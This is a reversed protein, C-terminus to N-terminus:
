LEGILKELQKVVEDMDPRQSPDFRWCKKVIPGFWVQHAHALKPRCGGQAKTVFEDGAMGMFPNLRDQVCCSALEWLVIGFSWVDVKSDYGHRTFIEPATYGSSGVEEVLLPEQQQRVIASGM